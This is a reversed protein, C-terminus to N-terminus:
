FLQLFYSLGQASLQTNLHPRNLKIHIAEKISCEFDNRATDIVKFHDISYNTKCSRCTDLHEKIASQGSTGHERVRTTLHRKTKGIYTINADRSCQFQYVVNAVLPLPTRCKLSFYNKVKFSTYVIKIDILFQARFLKRLKNGM